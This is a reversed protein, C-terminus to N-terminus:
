ADLDLSKYIIIIKCLQLMLFEQDVPILYKSNIDCSNERESKLLFKIM